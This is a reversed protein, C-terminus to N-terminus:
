PSLPCKSCIKCNVRDAKTDLDLRLNETYQSVIGCLGVISCHWFPEYCVLRPMEALVNEAMHKKKKKKVLKPDDVINIVKPVRVSCPISFYDLTTGMEVDLFNKLFIEHHMTLSSM